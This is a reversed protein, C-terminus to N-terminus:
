DETADYKEKLADVTLGYLVPSKEINPYVHDVQYGLLVTYRGNNTFHWDDKDTLQSQNLLISQIIQLEHPDVLSQLAQLNWTRSTANILSDM